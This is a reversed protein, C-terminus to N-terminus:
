VPPHLPLLRALRLRHRLLLRVNRLSLYKPDQSQISQRILLTQPQALAQHPLQPQPHLCPPLHLCAMLMPHLRSMLNTVMTQNVLLRKLLAPLHFLKATIRLTKLILAGLLVPLPPVRPKLRRLAQTTEMKLHQHLRLIAMSGLNQQNHLLTSMALTSMALTNMELPMTMALLRSTQHLQTLRAHLHLVQTLLRLIQTAETQLHQRLRLPQQLIAMSGLSQQNHLLTSMALTNTALLKFAQHHQTLRVHHHLMQTLLSRCPRHRSLLLLHFLPNRMATPAAMAVTAKEKVKEM